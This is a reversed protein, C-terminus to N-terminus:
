KMAQNKDRGSGTVFFNNDKLVKMFQQPTTDLYHRFDKILHSQDHYNFTAILDFVDPLNEKQSIITNIVAKFRLFRLLEKPSYGTYKQFRLQVTRESLQANAAIAKAPQIVPDHFYNKGALLPQSAADNDTTISLLYDNLLDVRQQITAAKLEQWLEQIYPLVVPFVVTKYQDIATNFIRYFGNLHFNLVMADAGPVLTYNLMKRLPGVASIAELHYTGAPESGFSFPITPGFNLVVMMELNPALHKNVNSSGAPNYVHYYHTIIEQLAPASEYLDGHHDTIM